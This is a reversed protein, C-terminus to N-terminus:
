RREDGDGGEKPYTENELARLILALMSADVLEGDATERRSLSKAMTGPEIGHQLAVSIVICADTVLFELDSGSRFGEAYFVECPRSTVPDLGITLFFTAEGAMPDAFSVPRRVKLNM